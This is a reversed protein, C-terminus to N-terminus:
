ATVNWSSKMKKVGSYQFRVEYEGNHLSFFCFAFFFLFIFPFSLFVNPINCL